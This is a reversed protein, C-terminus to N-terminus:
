SNYRPSEIVDRVRQAATEAVGLEHLIRGAIGDPDAILALLLHETGL